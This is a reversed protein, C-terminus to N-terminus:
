KTEWWVESIAENGVNQSTLDFNSSLVLLNEFPLGRHGCEHLNIGYFEDYNLVGFM